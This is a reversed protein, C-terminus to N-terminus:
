VVYERELAGGEWSMDALWTNAFWFIITQFVTGKKKKQEKYLRLVSIKTAKNKQGSGTLCLGWVIRFIESTM